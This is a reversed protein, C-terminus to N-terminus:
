VASNERVIRRRKKTPEFAPMHNHLTWMLMAADIGLNILTQELHRRVAVLKEEALSAHLRLSAAGDQVLRYDADMPLVQALARSLVDSFVVIQSGDRGPLILMDDCRGEIHDLARTVKGCPCPEARAVLVDNLRYRVIPQTMRSFDTIVPVFRRHADDLWQPEVHVYEENLHLVGHACTSALFGETAQYIEHLAGFAKEIIIRDQPELVEAVSIVRKPMVQLQGSLAALALQRLVQAPAVIISPRYNALRAAHQDFPKFLDFFAFTIWRNRVATYLNSNARLFLAVREGAFLGNPLAKALMIGAWQAKEKASVIFAGRQASTGSSLGVTISGITPTFDGSREARMAVDMVQTLALGATNMADFNAIMHAKDMLPWQALPKGKFAAFYDSRQCLKRMFKQLARAQHQELATRTSFHLRRARWYALLLWFVHKL